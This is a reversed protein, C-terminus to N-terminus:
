LVALRVAKRMRRTLGDELEMRKELLVKRLRDSGAALLFSTLSDRVDTVVVLTEGHPLLLEFFGSDGGIPMLDLLTEADFDALTGTGGPGEDSRGDGEGEGSQGQHRGDNLVIADETQSSGNGSAVSREGNGGPAAREEGARRITGASRPRANGHATPTGHAPAASPLTPLHPTFPPVRKPPVRVPLDESYFHEM